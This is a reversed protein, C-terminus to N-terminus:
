KKNKIEILTMIGYNVLDYLTDNLKEDKVKADKGILIKFRNLKDTLRISSSMLGYEQFTLHFSNDYDMNKNILLKKLEDFIEDIETEKM